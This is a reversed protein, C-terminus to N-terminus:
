VRRRFSRVTISRKSRQYITSGAIEQSTEPDQVTRVGVVLAGGNSNAFSAIDAALDRRGKPKNIDVFTKFDLWRTEGTGLLEDFRGSALNLPSPERSSWWRGLGYRAVVDM